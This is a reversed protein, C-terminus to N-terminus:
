SVAGLVRRERMMCVAALMALTFWVFGPRVASGLCCVAWAFESISV